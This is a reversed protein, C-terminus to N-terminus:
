SLEALVTRTLVEGEIEFMESELEAIMELARQAEARLAIYDGLRENLGIRGDALAKLNPFDTM